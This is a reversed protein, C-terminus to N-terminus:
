QKAALGEIDQTLLGGATKACKGMQLPAPDRCPSHAPVDLHLWPMPATCSITSRLHGPQMRCRWREQSAPPQLLRLHHHGSAAHTTGGVKVVERGFDSFTPGTAVGGAMFHEHFMMPEKNDTAHRSWMEAVVDLGTVRTDALWADRGESTQVAQVGAAVHRPRSGAAPEFGGEAARCAHLPLAHAAHWLALPEPHTHKAATGSLASSQLALATTPAAQLSRAQLGPSGALPSAAAPGGYWALAGHLGGSCLSLRARV